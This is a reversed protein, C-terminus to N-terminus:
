KTMLKKLRVSGSGADVEIRGKGDGLTGTLHNSEKHSVTIPFDTSVGGSGTEIDLSAGATPPLWLTVSGSGSDIKLDDIDTLFEASLGGSGLDMKAHRASLRKLTTTGSGADIDLLGTVTVNDGTVGGSGADIRLDSAKVDRLDTGGSGLDLTVRGEVNALLTGGSGADVSIAGVHDRVEVAASALDLTLPARVGQAVLSGVAHHVVADVGDPVRVVLDAWAETGSGRGSIKVRDGRWRSWGGKGEDGDGWRGDDRVTITSESWRGLKPYVIRDADYRVRLTGRGDIAGTEVKIRDADRGQRTVEVTVASGTGREIRVEGALNYISVTRGTVTFSEARQAALPTGLVVFPLVLLGTPARM